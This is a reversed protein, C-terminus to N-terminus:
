HGGVRPGETGRRAEGRRATGRAGGFAWRERDQSARCAAAERARRFASARPEGRADRAEGRTDQAERSRRVMTSALNGDPPLCSPSAVVRSARGDDHVADGGDAHDLLVEPLTKLPNLGIHELM